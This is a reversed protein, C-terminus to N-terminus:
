PPALRFPRPSLRAPAGGNVPRHGKLRERARSGRATGNRVPMTGLQTLITEFTTDARDNYDQLAVMSEIVPDRNFRHLRKRGSIHQELQGFLVRARQWGFLRCLAGTIDWAVAAPDNFKVPCGQSDSAEADQCWRIESDLLALLKDKEDAMM